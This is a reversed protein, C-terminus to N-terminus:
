ANAPQRHTVPMRRPMRRVTQHPHCVIYDFSEQRQNEHEQHQSIDSRETVHFVKQM